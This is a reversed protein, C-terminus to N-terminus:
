RVDRELVGSRYRGFWGRLERRNDGLKPWRVDRELVGSRYHGFWGRLERRNDGLRQWRVSHGVIISLDPILIRGYLERLM